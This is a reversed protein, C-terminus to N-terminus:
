IGVDLAVNSCFFPTSSSVMSSYWLFHYKGIYKGFLTEPGFIEFILALPGNQGTFQFSFFPLFFLFFLSALFFFLCRTSFFFFFFSSTHRQLQFFSLTPISFKEANIKKGIKESFIITFKNTNFKIKLM